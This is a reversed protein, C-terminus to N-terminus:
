VAVGVCAVKKEASNERWSAHTPFGPQVRAGQAVFTSHPAGGAFNSGSHREIGANRATRADGLRLQGRETHRLGADRILLDHGVLWVRPEQDHVGYLAFLMGMNRHFSVRATPRMSGCAQCRPLGIANPAQAQPKPMTAQMTPM